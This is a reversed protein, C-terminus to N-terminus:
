IRYFIVLDLNYNYKEVCCKITSSSRCKTGSLGYPCSKMDFVGECGCYPKKFDSLCIPVAYGTENETSIRCAIGKGRKLSPYNIEILVLENFNAREKLKTLDNTLAHTLLTFNHFTGDVL